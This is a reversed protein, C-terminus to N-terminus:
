DNLNEKNVEIHIVNEDNNELDIIVSQSEKLEVTIIENYGCLVDFEYRYLFGTDNAESLPRLDTISQVTFYNKLEHSFMAKKFANRINKIEARYTDHEESLDNESLGYIAVTFTSEKYETIEKVNGNYEYGSRMDENNSLETIMVYPYDPMTFRETAFFVKDSGYTCNAVILDRLKYKVTEFDSM